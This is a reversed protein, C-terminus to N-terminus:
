ENATIALGLVGIISQPAAMAAGMIQAVPVPNAPMAAIKLSQPNDLYAGVAASVSAAFAPNQLQALAFPLTGKAQAIISERNTGQQKAVFDLVKGTASDDV